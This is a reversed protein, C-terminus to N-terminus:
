TGGRDQIGMSWAGTLCAGADLPAEGRTRFPGAAGRAMPSRPRPWLTPTYPPHVPTSTPYCTSHVLRSTPSLM